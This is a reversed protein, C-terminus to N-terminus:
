RTTASSTPRRPSASSTPSGIPDDPEYGELIDGFAEGLAAGLAAAWTPAGLPLLAVFLLPIFFPKQDIDVPIEPIRETLLLGFFFLVGCLAAIVVLKGPTTAERISESTTV